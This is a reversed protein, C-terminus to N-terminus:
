PAWALGSDADLGLGNTLQRPTGITPVGTENMSLDAVWLDFGAAGPALALFALRTSDPAFAPARATGLSTLRLPTAGGDAPLAFIDTRGTDRAAFALWSGDPTFAPDYSPEPAGALPGANTTFLDVQYLRQYGDAGNAAHTFILRTGDPSFVSKGVQATEDAYLVRAVGPSSPVLGLVLNDDAPPDGTPTTRQIAVALQSSDPSWAPYFVWRSAYVRALSNPPETTGNNTLQALPTGDALALRLDSFSNAQVIYAIRDGTPSWTPHRAAGTDAVLLPRAEQGQWQWIVGQRVFLLRGPLAEGRVPAADASNALEAGSPEDTAGGCAGLVLALLFLILGLHYRQM